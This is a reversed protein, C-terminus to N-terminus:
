NAILTYRITETYLGDPNNNLVRVAVQHIVVTGSPVNNALLAGQGATPIASGGAAVSLWTEATGLAYRVRPAPINGIGLNILRLDVSPRGSILCQAELTGVFHAGNGNTFNIREGTAVGGQDVQVTGWDLDGVNGSNNTLTTTAAGDTGGSVNLTMATEVNLLLDLDVTTSTGPNNPTATNTVTQALV